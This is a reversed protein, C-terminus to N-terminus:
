DSDTPKVRGIKGQPIIVLPGGYADYIALVNLLGAIVTFVTGLEFRDAMDHHWKALEDPHVVENGSQDVSVFPQAQLRPPTPPRMLDQLTDKALFDKKVHGRQIIAPLASLGAGLQCFYQWRTFLSPTSAYVVRGGGLYFGYLFTGLICILFLIGKGTRGQYLHGLGPILWALLAALWPDKLEVEIAESSEFAATKRLAHKSRFEPM